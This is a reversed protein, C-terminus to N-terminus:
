ELADTRDSGPDKEAVDLGHAVSSRHAFPQSAVLRYWCCLSALATTSSSPHMNPTFPECVSAANRLCHVAILGSDM